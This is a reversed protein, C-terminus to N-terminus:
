DTESEPIRYFILNLKSSASFVGDIRIQFNTPQTHDFTTVADGGITWDVSTLTYEPVGGNFVEGIHGTNGNSPVSIVTSKISPNQYQPLASIKVWPKVCNSTTYLDSQILYPQKFQTFIRFVKSGDADDTIRQITPYMQSGGSKNGEQSFALTSGLATLTDTGTVIFRQVEGDILSFENGTVTNQVFNFYFEFAQPNVDFTITGYTYVESTGVLATDLIMLAGDVFEVTGSIPNDGYFGGVTVGEYVGYDEWAGSTLTLSYEEKVASVSPTLTISFSTKVDLTMECYRGVNGLYFDLDRGQDDTYVRDIIQLAM